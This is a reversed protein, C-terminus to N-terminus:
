EVADGSNKKNRSNFAEMLMNKLSDVTKTLIRLSKELDAIRSEMFLANSDYDYDAVYLYNSHGQMKKDYIFYEEDDYYEILSAMSVGLTRAIQSLRSLSINTLGREIKSYATVSINLDYAMNEQSLGKQVRLSRLYYYFNKM